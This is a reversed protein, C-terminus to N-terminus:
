MTKVPRSNVRYVTAPLWCSAVFPEVSIAVRAALSSSSLRFFSPLWTLLRILAWNKSNCYETMFSPLPSGIGALYDRFGTTPHARSPKPVALRCTGATSTASRILLFSWGLALLNWAPPPSVVTSWATKLSGSIKMNRNSIHADSYRFCLIHSSHM